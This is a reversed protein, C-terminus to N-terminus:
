GPIYRTAVGCAQAAQIQRLDASVFLEANWELACAIHLADMARLVNTELVITAREIVAPSLGVIEVSSVDNSLAKKLVFYQDDSIRKERRHRNLAAIVETFCIVSLASESAAACLERVEVTGSERIYRKTFASSDFLARM